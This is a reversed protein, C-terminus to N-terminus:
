MLNVREIKDDDRKYWESYVRNSSFNILMGWQTHTLNMYNRLQKRHDDTIYKIAKLEIIIDGDVVLDMRYTKELKVDEWYMPLEKEEEVKYGGKELLYKLASEYASELLGGHYKNYVKMAVGIIHKQRELQKNYEAIVDM